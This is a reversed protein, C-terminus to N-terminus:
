NARSGLRTLEAGDSLYEAGSPRIPLLSPRVLACSQLEKDSTQLMLCPATESPSGIIAKLETKSAADRLASGQM